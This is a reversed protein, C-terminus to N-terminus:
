DTKRRLWRWHVGLALLFCLGACLSSILIDSRLSYGIIRILLGTVLSTGVLAVPVGLCGGLLYGGSNRRHGVVGLYIAVVVAGAALNMMGTIGAPVYGRINGQYVFATLWFFTGMHVAGLFAASFGSAPLLHQRSRENPM